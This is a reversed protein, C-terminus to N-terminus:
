DLCVWSLMEWSNGSACSWTMRLQEYHSWAKNENSKWNLGGTICSQSPAINAQRPLLPSSPLSISVGKTLRKLKVPSETYGSDHDQFHAARGGSRRQLTSHTYVEGGAHLLHSHTSFLSLLASTSTWPAIYAEASIFLCLQHLLDTATCCISSPSM